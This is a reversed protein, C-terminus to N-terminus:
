LKKISQIVRRGNENDIFSFEVRDSENIGDLQGPASPEFSMTMSEMFGPITEHLINVYKRDPGFSKITGRTSYSAPASAAPRTCALISLSTGLMLGAILVTRASLSRNM